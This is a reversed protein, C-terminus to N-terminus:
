VGKERKHKLQLAGNTIGTILSTSTNFGGTSFDNRPSFMNDRRLGNILLLNGRTFWSGEIVTKKGKEDVKTIRKNYNIFAMKYYKVDVVGYCTLLTVIHKTKDANLVTGMIRKMEYQPYEVGTRANKKYGVVKPQEPLTNFNAVNYEKPNIKALEHASYYYSMSDMEWKSISGKCYKDKWEAIKQQLEGQYMAETAEETLMWEKLGTIYKNYFKTFASAKVSYGDSLIDYEKGQTLENQCLTTFFKKEDSDVLIYYKTKGDVGIQMCHKDIWKKFYTMKVEYNFSDPIIKLELAKDYNAMTLKAKKSVKQKAAYLLYQDMIYLRSKKELADFAGSKVLSIMQLNTLPTRECFDLLSTYPRNAIIQTIAEANISSVAQLGYLISNSVINVTFDAQAKNIDPLDVKYGQSQVNSIARAVKGYNTTVVPKKVGGEGEILEYPELVDEAEEEDGYSEFDTDSSGADVSLCACAWYLPNYYYALNAEQM